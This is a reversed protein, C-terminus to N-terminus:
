RLHKQYNRAFITRVHGDHNLLAVLAEIRSFDLTGNLAGARLPMEQLMHDLMGKAEGTGAIRAAASKVIRLIIRGLATTALDSVPSDITFPRVPRKAEPLPHGLLAAFSEDTFGHPQVTEYPALSAQHAAPATGERRITARARIDRSSAGIRIEYAGAEIEWRKADPAYHSFAREDLSFHLTTSQGAELTIKQFGKLEQPARFTSPAQPAVYLQVVETGACTGTNTLTIHATVTNGHEEIAIDDYSFRTYSLGFGFPFAVPTDSADYYRYGIFLSERHFARDAEDPYGDAGCPTDAITEPWTEALKGSPSAEGFLLKVLAPGCECGALYPVLLARVQHRWATEIPAGCQLVAVLNPNIRALAELLQIQSEPLRLTGRDYGESESDPAQGLFVIVTEAHQAARGAAVASEQTAEGTTPDYGAAYTLDPCRSRLADLPSVLEVPNVQSSGQGQFRPHEAFAGIVALTTEPRLPLIGDNHLLVASEEAARCALDLRARQATPREAEPIAPHAHREARIREELRLLPEVAADLQAETLTGDERAARIKLIHDPRPGPMSLSLGAAVSEKSRSMAGWDSILAGDFGWSQALELLARHESCYTGNLRNYASMLTWPHGERIAIEFAPLYLEHLAREDVISDVIMRKREQTNVAFHKLSTGVGQSQVGRIYAAAMTGALYPDESFYEFNRGCRPDRKMNVGPALLVDVENERCEQGLAAGIAELLEPDFSAALASATPFCTAPYSAEMDSGDADPLQKRLGHPGDSFRLSTVKDPISASHWFDAGALLRTKEETTLESPRTM